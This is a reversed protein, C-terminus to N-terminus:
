IYEQATIKIDYINLFTVNKFIPETHANYYSKAVISIVGHQLIVIRPVNTKYTSGWVLTCHNLCPPIMSNNRMRFASKSLFFSCRLIIVISKSTKNVLSSLHSEGLQPKM